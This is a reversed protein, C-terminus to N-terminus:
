QRSGQLLYDIIAAVNGILAPNATAEPRHGPMFAVFRGNWRNVAEFCQPFTGEEIQTEMLTWAPGVQELEIYIEDEPLSFNQLRGALPHRSKAVNIAYPRKPHTSPAVGDPDGPRVWRWGVSRRWWEWQWFAATSGHLLLADGGRACWAQVAREAGAGPHPQECTAGIMNLVLLECDALWAGSELMGWDNEYFRVRERLPAPLHEYIVKGPSVGYHDDAFFYLM